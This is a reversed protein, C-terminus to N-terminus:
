MVRRLPKAGNGNVCVQLTAHGASETVSNGDTTYVPTGGSTSDILAAAKKMHMNIHQISVLTGKHARAEHQESLRCNHARNAFLQASESARM